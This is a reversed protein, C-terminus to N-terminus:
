GQEGVVNEDDLVFSKRLVRSDQAREHEAEVIRLDSVSDDAREERRTRGDGGLYKSRLEELTPVHQNATSGVHAADEGSARIVVWGPRQERLIEEPSNRQRRNM